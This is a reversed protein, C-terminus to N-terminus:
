KVGTLINYHSSEFSKRVLNLKNVGYGAIISKVDNDNLSFSSLIGDYEYSIIPNKENLIIDFIIKSELGQLAFASQFTSYRTRSNTLPIFILGNYYGRENDPINIKGIENKIDGYEFLFKSNMYLKLNRRWTLFPTFYEQIIYELKKMREEHGARGYKELIMKSVSSYESMVDAGYLYSFQVIKMDDISIGVKAALERRKNKDEIFERFKRNSLKEKDKESLKDGMVTIMDQLLYSLIVMQSNSFDYNYIQDFLIKKSFRSLGQIGKLETMRGTANILFTPIYHIKGPNKKLRFKDNTEFLNAMDQCLRSIAYEMSDQEKGNRRNQFNDCKEITKELSDECVLNDAMFRKLRGFEFEPKIREVVRQYLDFRPYYVGDKEDGSVQLRPLIKTDRFEVNNLYEFKKQNYYYLVPYNWNEPKFGYSTQGIKLVKLAEGIGIGELMPFGTLYSGDELYLRSLLLREFKRNYFKRNALYYTKDTHHTRGSAVMSNVCEYIEKIFNKKKTFLVVLVRDGSYETREEGIWEVEELGNYGRESKEYKIRSRHEIVSKNIGKLFKRDKNRILVRDAVINDVKLLIRKDLYSIVDDMKCAKKSM